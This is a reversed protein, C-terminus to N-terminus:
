AMRMLESAPSDMAQPWRPITLRCARSRGGVQGRGDAGEGEAEAAAARGGQEAVRWRGDARLRVRRRRLRAGLTLQLESAREVVLVALAVGEKLEAADGAGVAIPARRVLVVLLRQADGLLVGVLLRRVLRAALEAERLAVLLKVREHRHLELGCPHAGRGRRGDRAYVRGGRGRDRNSHSAHRARLTRRRTHPLFM